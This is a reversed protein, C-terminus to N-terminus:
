WLGREIRFVNKEIHKYVALIEDNHILLVQGSNSDIELDKGQYIPFPEKIEVSELHSLALRPDVRFRTDDELIEELSGAQELVYPGVQTRVLKNMTGIQGLQNAIDECLTRMYTGTSVEAEFEIVGTKDEYNLIDLRYIEIDHYITDIEIQQRHYEYLKKGAVKKASVMPVRQKQKGILSKFIRDLDSMTVEIVPQTELVKGWIDGTDTTLGLQLSARYIKPQAQLFQLFKTMKGVLVMLLGTAQPDLTGMHGVKGPYKRRIKAIVDFSTMNMPKNVALIFNM